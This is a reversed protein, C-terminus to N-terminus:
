KRLMNEQITLCQQEFSIAQELGHKSVDSLHVAEDLLRTLRSVGSYSCSMPLLAQTYVAMFDSSNQTDLAVLEALRQEATASSLAKQESPYLHRMVNNLKNLMLADADAHHTQVRQFWQRKQNAIPRIVEAALAQSQGIDSSDRKKEALLLQPAKIYDYRNLQIVMAWRQAQTLTLGSLQESGNLLAALHRQAPLSRAFQIYTDFWLNLLTQNSQNAMALRLSMQELAKLVRQSYHQHNPSMQELYAKVQSLKSLVQSLTNNDQETPLNIFVSGMFRNLPLEGRLVSDWLSLWLMARLQPDGVKNLHLLATDQSRTDLKVNVYGWDQYNLYVLDPCRVGQLRKIETYEGKYTVAIALNRHLAGRGKTFLGLKVKQERLTPHQDSASQHITFQTIRNNVCRYDAEIRNVGGQYFWNQTWENLPRKASFALSAMFDNLDANNFRYQELYHSIGQNFAKEGLLFNLQSLLAVGKQITEDSLGHQIQDSHTMPQEIARSNFRNDQQYAYYKDQYWAPKSSDDRLAKQTVFQALSESLWLDNWWRLTVLNSLWQYALAQTILQQNANDNQAVLYASEQISAVASNAMVPKSLSPVLIQDYQRFPYNAGLERILANMSSATAALWADGDISPAVSQRAFLRIPMAHNTSQWQHFPGAYLSFTHPSLKDTPAFQWHTTANTEGEGQNTLPGASIVTWNQPADVSLNFVAKLDPQDFLPMMMQASAPLFHSYLYIQGDIPDQYKIIGEDGESYQKSYSIQVQNSGSNLLSQPINLSQGDYNPYLRSGNVKFEIIRAQNLDLTIPANNNDLNFRIDAIGSFNYQQSLNIHINYNLETVRSTRQQADHFSISGSQNKLSTTTVKSTSQCAIQSLAIVTVACLQLLKM